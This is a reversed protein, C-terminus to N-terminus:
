KTQGQKLIVVIGIATVAIVLGPVWLTIGFLEIM